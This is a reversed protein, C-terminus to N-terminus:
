DACQNIFMCSCYCTQFVAGHTWVGFGLAIASVIVLLFIHTHAKPARPRLIGSLLELGPSCCTMWGGSRSPLTLSFCFMMSGYVAYIIKVIYYITHISHALHLNDIKLLFVTVRSIHKIQGKIELTISSGMKKCKKRM